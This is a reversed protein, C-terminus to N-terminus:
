NDPELSLYDMCFNLCTPLLFTKWLHLRKPCLREGSVANVNEASNRLPEPWEQSTSDPMLLIYHVSSVLTALMIMCVRCHEKESSSLYSCSTSLTAETM